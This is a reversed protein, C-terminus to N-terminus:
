KEWTPMLELWRAAAQDARALDEPHTIKFVLPDGEVVAIEVDGFRDVLEATDAGTAEVGAAIGYATRLPGALFAQPTQVRVTGPPAPILSDGSRVWVPALPTLIPIAGGAIAARELRGILDPTVFPRAADHVMIIDVEVGELAALGAHESDTRTRGGEVVHDHQHRAWEMDDARAVVVMQEVGALRFATLPYWLLPRGAVERYPKNPGNGMRSGSGGALIIAATTM